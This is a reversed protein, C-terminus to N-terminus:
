NALESMFKIRLLRIEDLDYDDPELEKLALEPNDTDAQMFYEFVEDKIEEDLLDELVYDINLRTGSAVISEMEVILEEMSMQNARAIEDLSIKKDINQIIAIKQKSKNAVQHTVFESPRDIENEEVYIKILELFQSGYKLAKGKSVGVINAMEDVTIPYNTAMDNLSADQFVVFPPVNKQKAVKRRLDKLMDLLTDDLAVGRDPGSDDAANLDEETYSHNIAMKISYPKEIYAAASEHFKIVGYDEIDKYLLNLLLAQRIVSNWYHSNHEKGAGFDELKDQKTTVIEQNSVGMLYDVIHGIQFNEGLDRVARLVLRMSDKVEIKEKPHACSDCGKDCKKDDFDEGFYHLIFQRKCSAAESYAVVEQLHQAGIEREKVPKDRLFKDLKNIDKYSFYGVCKGELGDRGARGTEQYYNELSKPMDFHIVFRVDPKDIGMGFAITAVIVDIEEMIFQDQVTSRVNAELGAHYAAANIGNVQLLEAIEETTKRNLCYIIGSKGKNQSIFQIINKLTENKKLKPRIEYYLNPRNFSSIFINPQELKLTKIIDTRVKPTATATLAIIPIDSGLEDIMQRIRRYEPRFDHGWESICHAEDVAVFSINLEGLFDLTTDKTLTEPAIYLMKTNGDVLDQKVKKIQTKSLSSNLFHAVTDDSSYGRVMDVQNKMLAILPSIVIATGESVLAPLQYCLSKGGGTPMIVFTDRGCLISEIIEKQEGKFVNFGFYQQLAETLNINKNEIEM